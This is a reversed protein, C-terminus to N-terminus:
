VGRLYVAQWPRYNSYFTEEFITEGDRYVSYDFKVKLGPAAWDVQKVVGPALTPDDQYLPPPAPVAGWQKYNTIESVRGDSTGYLEIVLSLNNTDAKAQVLVHGPTDNLFKLDPSPAYVTADFGPKRDQEYYGVRYAHARREVVPLGADLIARFLTTSDQCVGGGDGLVTRGGKIVYASQYGTARSVDGITQNFSFVEGPPVLVGNLRSATLAVNHVRGPISHYFTSTGKGLLENIGLENVDGTKIIPETVRTDLVVVLSEESGNQLELLKGWVLDKSEDVMIELGPLAPAFEVVRGNEFAFAANRAKRDVGEALSELYEGMRRKDFEEKFGVLSVLDTDGWVAEEEPENGGRDVKVVLEKGILQEAREVANQKEKESVMNNEVSLFKTPSLSELWGIAKKIEGVLAAQDLKLGNEGEVVGVEVGGEGNQLEVKAKAGPQDIEAAITAVLLNLKEEDMRYVHAVEVGENANELVTKWRERWGGVRGQKYAQEVTAKADFVVGFDELVMDVVVEGSASASTGMAVKFRLGDGALYDRELVDVSEWARTVPYHSLDLGAVRVGPYIRDQYVWWGMVLAGVPISVLCFFWVLVLLTLSFVRRWKKEKKNQKMEMALNKNCIINYVRRLYNEALSRDLGFGMM